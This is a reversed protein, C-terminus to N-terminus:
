SSTRPLELQKEVRRHPLGVQEFPEGTEEYALARYFPLATERAHAFLLTFGAERAWDEAGIILQRGLGRRRQDPAVAVQRMQLGEKARPVLLLTALCIGSGEGSVLAFHSAHDDDARAAALSIGFPRLLVEERLRLTSEYLASGLPVVCFSPADLMPSSPLM